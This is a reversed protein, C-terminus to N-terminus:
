WIKSNRWLWRYKEFQSYDVNDGDVDEVNDGDVDEVYDDQDDDDHDGQSSAPVQHAEAHTQAPLCLSAAPPRPGDATYHQCCCCFCCCWCFCCCSNHIFFHLHHCYQHYYNRHHVHHCYQCINTSTTSTGACFSINVVIIKIIIIIGTTYRTLLWNITCSQESGLLIPPHLNAYIRRQRSGASAQHAVFQVNVNYLTLFHFQQGLLTAQHMYSPLPPAKLVSCLVCM